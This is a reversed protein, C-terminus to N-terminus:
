AVVKLSECAKGFTGSDGNFGNNERANSPFSVSAAKVSAPFCPDGNAPREAESQVSVRGNKM